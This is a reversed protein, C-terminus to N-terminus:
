AVAAVSAIPAIKTWQAEPQMSFQYFAFEVDLESKGCLSFISIGYAGSYLKLLPELYHFAYFESYIRGIVRLRLNTAIEELIYAQSLRVDTENFDKKVRSCYERAARVIDSRFPAVTENLIKINRVIKYFQPDTYNSIHSITWRPADHLDSYISPRLSELWRTKEKFFVNKRDFTSLMESLQQGTQIGSAKNTCSCTM